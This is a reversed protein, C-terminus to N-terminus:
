DPHTRSDPRKGVWVFEQEKLLGFERRILDDFLKDQQRPPAYNCLLNQVFHLTRFQPRPPSLAVLRYAQRISSFRIM